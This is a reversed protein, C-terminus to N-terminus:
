LHIVFASLTASVLGRPHHCYKRRPKELWYPNHWIFIVSVMMSMMGLHIFADTIESEFSSLSSWQSQSILIMQTMSLWLVEFAMVTNRQQSLKNVIFVYAFCLKRVITLTTGSHVLRTPLRSNINSRITPLSQASTSALLVMPGAVVLRSSAM